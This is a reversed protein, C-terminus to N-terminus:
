GALYATTVAFPRGETKLILVTWIMASLIFGINDQDRSQRPCIGKGKIENERRVFKKSALTFRCRFVQLHLFHNHL